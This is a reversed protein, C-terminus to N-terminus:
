SCSPLTPFDTLLLKSTNSQQFQKGCTKWIKVLMMGGDNWSEWSVLRGIGNRCKPLDVEELEWPEVSCLCISSISKKSQLPLHFSRSVKCYKSLIFFKFDVFKSNLTGKRYSSNQPCFLNPFNILPVKWQPTEPCDPSKPPLIDRPWRRFIRVLANPHGTADLQVIVKKKNVFQQIWILDRGLWLLNAGVTPIWRQAITCSSTNGWCNYSSPSVKQDTSDAIASGVSRSRGAVAGFGHAAVTVVVAVPVVWPSLAATKERKWLKLVHNRQFFVCEFNNLFLYSCSNDRRQTKKTPKFIELFM